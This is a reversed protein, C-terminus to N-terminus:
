KHNTNVGLPNREGGACAGRRLNDQSACKTGVLSNRSGVARAYVEFAFCHSCIGLLDTGCDPHRHMGGDVFFDVHGVLQVIGLYGGDTHVADVFRADTEDLRNAPDAGEFMPGAPDLGTIWGKGKPGLAISGAVGAIHAGLSHGILHVDDERAGVEAVLAEILAAVEAGVTPVTTTVDLPYIHPDVGSWDVLIVNVDAVKLFMDKVLDGGSGPKTNGNYGHIVFKTKRKSNFSSGRLSSADQVSLSVASPNKRTFLNFTVIGIAVDVGSSRVGGGAFPILNNAWSAFPGADGGQQVAAASVTGAADTAASKNQMGSGAANGGFPWSWLPRNNNTADGNGFNFGFFNANPQSQLANSSSGGSGVRGGSSSSSSSVSSSSGGNSSGSGGGGGSSSSSSSSSSVSRVNTKSMMDAGGGSVGGGGGFNLLGGINASFDAQFGPLGFHFRLPAALQLLSAGAVVLVVFRSPTM